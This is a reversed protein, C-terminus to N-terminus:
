YKNYIRYLFVAAEARTANARPNLRDGSGAILGKKVLTALSGAAYDAVDGKDSYKELVAPDDTVKLGKYKELARATLVMMDQRSINEKPNFRNNGSGAAIGLKKAIGVAEYYYAGPEVDDFNGDFEATLGLTRILLVLYDARTINAAPSFTDKGTGRIIGKSAMVEVPKRAWEVDGLDGFTKHVYAVAYYSFHTTTFTVTGTAPDYRGNPVSVVNGSGDIYWVVIHEPDALEAATPTYPISVTVPADPNNWETQKGDITLTLQVIPRDGIAAKVEEPLGSKDGQGITIGVTKGEAEPINDLMNGPVTITGIGTKIEIQNDMGKKTLFSSPLAAEYAKAGEVESIEISLRKVGTEDENLKSLAETLKAADVSATAKGTNKDLSASLTLSGKEETEPTPAPTTGSSGGSGSDSDHDSGSGGGSGQESGPVSGPRTGSLINVMFSDQKGQYSVVVEQGFAEKRSDFGSIQVLQPSITKRAGNNYDASVQLTSRYLPEGIYYDTLGSKVSICELELPLIQIAFSDSKGKYSVTIEQEQVPRSSNFGSITYSGEPMTRVYGNAYTCLVTLDEPKLVDGTYYTTKSPIVSLSLPEPEVIDVTTTATKGGFTYSLVQGKAPQSSDFGSIEEATPWINVGFSRTEVKGTAPNYAKGIYEAIVNLGKMNLPEGLLHETYETERDPITLSVVEEPPLIDVTFSAALEGFRITVEQDESPQSSDYGLCEYMLGVQDVERGYPYLIKFELGSLDIEEYQYFWQRYPLRDIRLAYPKSDQVNVTFSLSADDIAYTVVQGMQPTRSDFGSFCSDDLWVDIYDVPEGYNYHYRVKMGSKNLTDGLYYDTQEPPSLLEMRVVKRPEIDITFSVEQNEYRVVVKRDTGPRRDIAFDLAGVPMPEVVMGNEYTIKVVLDSFDDPSVGDWENFQRKAPLQTIEMKVPSNKQVKIPISFEKNLSHQALASTVLVRLDKDGPTYTDFELFGIDGIEDDNYPLVATRGDAYYATFTLGDLKVIDATEKGLGEYQWYTTKHPPTNLQIDTIYNPDIVANFPESIFDVQVDEYVAEYVTQYRLKFTTLGLKSNDFDVVEVEKADLAVRDGNNYVATIDWGSLDLPNDIITRPYEYINGNLALEIEKMEIPKVEMYVAESVTNGYEIWVPVSDSPESTDFGKINGPALTIKELEDYGEYHKKAWGEIGNKEILKEKTDGVHWINNYTSIQIADFQRSFVMVNFDVSAGGWTLTVTQEGAEGSGQYGTVQWGGGEPYTVTERQGDNYAAIISMGALDLEDRGDNMYPYNEPMTNVFIRSVKKNDVEAHITVEAAEYGDFVEFTIDAEGLGKGEIVLDEGDLSVTAIGSANSNLNRFSLSDGDVDKFAKAAKIRLESNIAIEADLELAAKKTLQPYVSEIDPVLEPLSNVTVPVDIHSWLSGDTVITHVEGSGPRIGTIVLKRDRISPAVFQNIMWANGRFNLYEDNDDKALEDIDIEITEGAKIKDPAYNRSQPAKKAESTAYVKVPIMVPVTFTGDTVQVTIDTRGPALTTIKLKGGEIVASAASPNTNGPVGAVVTLADLNRDTALESAELIFERSQGADEPYVTVRVDEPKKAAPAEPVSYIVRVNFDKSVWNFGHDYGKYQFRTESGAKLTAGECYDWYGYPYKYVAQWRIGTNDTVTVNNKLFDGWTIYVEDMDTSYVYDTITVEPSAKDEVYVLVNQSSVNGSKDKTMFRGYTHGMPVQGPSYFVECDGDVVDYATVGGPVPVPTSKLSAADLEISGTPVGSLVPGKTDIVTIKFSGQEVNGAKDRAECIIEHTGLPLFTRCTLSYTGQEFSSEKAAEPLVVSISEPKLYGDRVDTARLSFEVDAGGLTNGEVRMDLPKILTPKDEDPPLDRIINITYTKATVGDPATVTVKLPNERAKIPFEGGTNINKEEFLPMKYWGDSLERFEEAEIAVKAGENEKAAVAKFLATNFKNDVTVTYDTINPNFGIDLVENQKEEGTDPDIELKKLVLGEVANLSADKSPLRTIKLEYTIVSGSAPKVRLPINNIGVQLSPTYVYYEGEKPYKMWASDNYWTGVEALPSEPKVLIKVSSNEYPVEASYSSMMQDFSPNLAFGEIKIDEAFNNTKSNRKRFVNLTYHEVDAHRSIVTIDVLNSGPEISVKHDQSEYLKGNIFVTDWLNKGEAKLYINSVNEDVGINFSKQTVDLAAAQGKSETKWSLEKLEAGAELPKSEPVITIDYPLGNVAGNWTTIIIKAEWDNGEPLWIGKVSRKYLGNIYSETGSVHRYLKFEKGDINVTQEKLTSDYYRVDARSLLSDFNLEVARVGQPVRLVYSQVDPNFGQTATQGQTLSVEKNNILAKLTNLQYKQRTIYLFYTKKTGNQATVQLYIKNEGYQLSILRDISLGAPEAGTPPNGMSLRLGAREDAVAAMLNIGSVEPEVEFQYGTQEPKFNLPIWNDGVLEKRNLAIIRLNANASKARNVKITYTNETLRPDAASNPFKVKIRLNSEGYPIDKYTFSKGKECNVGNIELVTNNNETLAPTITVENTDCDLLLKYDTIRPNFGSSNNNNNVAPSLSGRDIELKEIQLIPAAKVIIPYRKSTYHDYSVITLELSLQDGPKYQYNATVMGTGETMANNGERIWVDAFSSYATAEVTVWSVAATSPLWVEYYGGDPHKSDQVYNPTFTQMEGNYGKANFKLTQLNASSSGSIDYLVPVPKDWETATVTLFNTSAEIGAGAKLEVGEGLSMGGEGSINASFNFKAEGTYEDSDWQGNAFILFMEVNSSVNINIGAGVGAYAEAGAEGYAGFTFQLGLKLDRLGNFTNALEELVNNTRFEAFSGTKASNVMCALASKLLEGGTGAAHLLPKASAELVLQALPPAFVVFRFRTGEALKDATDRLGTWEPPDDYSLISTDMLAGLVKGMGEITPLFYDVAAGAIEGLPISAEAGMMNVGQGRGGLADVSLYLELETDIGADVVLSEATERITRGFAGELLESKIDDLTTTMSDLDNLAIDKDLISAAYVNIIEALTKGSELLNKLTTGGVSGLKAAPVALEMGTDLTLFNWTCDWIGAGLGAELNVGITAEGLSDKHELAYEDMEILVAELATHVNDISLPTGGTIIRESEEALVYVGKSLVEGARDPSVKLSVSAGIGGSVTVAYDCTAEVAVGLEVEIATEDLAGLNVKVLQGSPLTMYMESIVYPFLGIGIPLRGHVYSKGDLTLDMFVTPIHSENAFHAANGDGLPSANSFGFVSQIGTGQPGNLWFSIDIALDQKRARVRANGGDPMPLNMETDFNFPISSILDYLGQGVKELEKLVETVKSMESVADEVVAEVDSTLSDMITEVVPLGGNAADGAFKVADQAKKYVTDMGLVTLGEKIFSGVTSQSLDNFRDETWDSIGGYVPVSQMTLLMAVVLLM